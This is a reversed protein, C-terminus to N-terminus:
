VKVGQGILLRIHLIAHLSGREGDYQLFFSLKVGKLVAM